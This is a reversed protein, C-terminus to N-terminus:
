KAAALFGDIGDALLLGVEVTRDIAGPDVSDPTDARQHAGPSLGLADLSGIAVAPIGAMRARLATGAGRGRHGTLELGPDEAAAERCLARLGSFYGLPVLPGDSHWFRPQGHACPGVGVVVATHAQISHKRTRLYNRLGLGSGDGAGTLVVHVAAEDLPAADLARALAVVAAVGSGNDGAGPAFGASALDLLAALALVLAITPLLQAVGLATGVAGEFRAIAVALLWVLFVALWGSWGLTWGGLRSRIRAPVRRLAERRVLGARGADLNATLILSVRRDRTGAPPLAVVNQSAREPTLRRGLSVAWLADAITSLLAVLLLGAGVRPHHVALLSGALGLAVHWVNALAWNPRCWFPEIVVERGAQELSRALWLAARREADSGAGHETFGALGSVIEPPAM